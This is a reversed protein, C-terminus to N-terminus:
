KTADYATFNGRRANELVFLAYRDPVDIRLRRRMHQDQRAFMEGTQGVGLRLVLRYQSMGKAQRSLHGCDLPQVATKPRNDIGAGIRILGYRMQM